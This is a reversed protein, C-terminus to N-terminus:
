STERGRVPWDGAGYLLMSLAIRSHALSLLLSLLVHDSLCRLVFGAPATLGPPAGIIATM